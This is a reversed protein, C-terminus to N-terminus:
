GFGIPDDESDDIIDQEIIETDLKENKQEIEFDHANEHVDGDGFLVENITQIHEDESQTFEEGAEVHDFRYSKCGLIYAVHQGLPHFSYDKDDKTDEIEWLKKTTVHYIIDGIKPQFELDYFTNKPIHITIDDMSRIGFKSFMEGTGEWGETQEIFGYLHHVDRMTEILHEGFTPEEDAYEKQIYILPDGHLQVGEEFIDKFLEIDATPLQQNMRFPHSGTGYSPRRFQGM